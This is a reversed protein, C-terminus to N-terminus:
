RGEEERTIETEPEVKRVTAEVVEPKSLDTANQRQILLREKRRKLFQKILPITEPRDKVEFLNPVKINGNKDVTLKINRYHDPVLETKDFEKDIDIDSSISYKKAKNVLDSFILNDEEERSNVSKEFLDLLINPMNPLDFPMVNEVINQKEEADFIDIVDTLGDSEAVAVSLIALIGQFM